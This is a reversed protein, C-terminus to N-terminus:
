AVDGSTIPAAIGPYGRDARAYGYYPAIVTVSLAGARNCASIMTILEMISDNVPRCTPQVIYCHKGSVDKANFECRVEGDNFSKLTGAALSTGLRAAVKNSLDPNANGALIAFDSPSGDAFPQCVPM